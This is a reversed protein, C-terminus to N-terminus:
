DLPCRQKSYKWDIDKLMSGQQCIGPSPNSNADVTIMLKKAPNPKAAPTGPPDSRPPASTIDYLKNNTVLMICGGEVGEIPCGILHLEKKPQKDSSSNQAM